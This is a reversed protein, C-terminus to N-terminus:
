ILRSRSRLRPQHGRHLRLSPLEAKTARHRALGLPSSSWTPRPHPAFGRAIVQAPHNRTSPRGAESARHPTLM